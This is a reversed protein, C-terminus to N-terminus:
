NEGLREAAAYTHRLLDGDRAKVTRGFSSEAVGRESDDCLRDDGFPSSGGADKEIRARGAM